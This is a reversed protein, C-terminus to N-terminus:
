RFDPSLPPFCIPSLFGYQLFCSEKKSGFTPVPCPPFLPVLFLTLSYGPFFPHDFCFVISLRLVLFFHPTLTFQNLLVLLSPFGGICLPSKFFKFFFINDIGFLGCPPCYLFCFFFVPGPPPFGDLSLLPFVLPFFSYLPTQPFLIRPRIWLL